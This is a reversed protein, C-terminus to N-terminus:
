QNQGLKSKKRVSGPLFNTRDSGLEVKSLGHQVEEADEDEELDYISGRRKQPKPPQELSMKPRTPLRSRLKLAPREVDFEGVGHQAPYAVGVVGKFNSVKAQSSTFIRPSTKCNDMKLGQGTPRKEPKLHPDWATGNSVHEASMTQEGQSWNAGDTTDENNLAREIDEDNATTEVPTTAGGGMVLDTILAPSSKIQGLGGVKRRTGSSTSTIKSLVIAPLARRSKERVVSVEAATTAESIAQKSISPQLQPITFASSSTYLHSQRAAELTRPGGPPRNLNNSEVHPMLAPFEDHGASSAHAHIKGASWKEEIATRVEDSMTFSQGPRRRSLLSLSMRRPYPKYPPDMPALSRKRSNQQEVAGGKHLWPLKGLQNTDLREIIPTKLTRQRWHKTARHYVEEFDVRHFDNSFWSHQKAEKVNMRQEENLVLLQQVFDKPRKGVHQWEADDDLQKLDCRQALEQCYQNTKRSVFPSGGTLLVVTICGISWM